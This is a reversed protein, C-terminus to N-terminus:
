LKDSPYNFNRITKEDPPDILNVPHSKLFERPSINGNEVFKLLFPYANSEWLTLLPEPQKEQSNYFCTAMKNRDRYRILLDLAQSNVFPMDVAMVLWDKDPMQAFASLIGNLPGSINFGDVIPNLHPPVQQDKRCSLFVQECFNKLLDFLFDRQPRGNYEILSKDRGMRSSHGGTLILGNLGKHIEM